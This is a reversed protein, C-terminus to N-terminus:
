GQRMLKINYIYHKLKAATNVSPWSGTISCYCNLIGLVWIKIESCQFSGHEESFHRSQSPLFLVLYVQFMETMGPLSSIEFFSPYLDSPWPAVQLTRVLDPYFVSDFYHYCLQILTRLKWISIYFVLSLELTSIDALFSSLLILFNNQKLYCTCTQASCKYQRLLIHYRRVKKISPRFM